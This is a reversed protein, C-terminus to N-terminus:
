RFEASMLKAITNMQINSTGEYIAGIKADRYLKEVGMSKTFGVGGLLEVCKSAVKEAVQSSYLKAMAAQKVVPQGAEKMRAMAVTFDIARMKRQYRRYAYTAVGIALLVIVAFLADPPARSASNSEADPTDAAKPPSPASRAICDMDM